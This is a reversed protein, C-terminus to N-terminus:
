NCKPLADWYINENKFLPIWLLSELEKKKYNFIQFRDRQFDYIISDIDRPCYFYYKGCSLYLFDEKNLLSDATVLDGNKYIKKIESWVDRYNPTEIVKRDVVFILSKIGKRKIDNKWEEIKEKNKKTIKPIEILVVIGAFLVSIVGFLVGYNVIFDYIIKSLNDGEFLNKM